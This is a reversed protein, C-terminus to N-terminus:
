KDYKYIDENDATNIFFMNLKKTHKLSFTFNRIEYNEFGNEEKMNREDNGANNIIPIFANIGKDSILTFLNENITINCFSM